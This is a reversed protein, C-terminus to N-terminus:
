LEKVDINGNIDTVVEVTYTPDNANSFDYTGVAGPNINGSGAAFSIDVDYTFFAKTLIPENVIVPIEVAGCVAWASMTKCTELDKCDSKLRYGVLGSSCSVPYVLNKALAQIKRLETSFNRADGLAAQRQSFRFYAALSVGSLLIIIAIVVILEILTFGNPKRNSM